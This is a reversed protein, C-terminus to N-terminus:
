KDGRQSIGCESVEIDRSYTKFNTSTLGRLKM